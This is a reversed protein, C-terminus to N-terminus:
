RTLLFSNIEEWINVVPIGKSKAYNVSHFTGGKQVEPDLYAILIDIGGDVLMKNRKFLAAVRANYSMEWPYQKEAYHIYTDSNALIYKVARRSLYDWHNSHEYFPPYAHVPILSKERLPNYYDEGSLNFASVAAMLDFGQAVGTHLETIDMALFLPQLIQTGVLVLSQPIVGRDARGSLYEKGGPIKYPRHGTVGIKM